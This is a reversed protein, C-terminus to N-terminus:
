KSRTKYARVRGEINSACIYYMCVYGAYRYIYFM